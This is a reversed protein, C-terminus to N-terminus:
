MGQIANKVAQGKDGEPVHFRTDPPPTTNKKAEEVEAAFAKDHLEQNNSGELRKVVRQKEGKSEPDLFKDEVALLNAEGETITTAEQIMKNYTSGDSQGIYKFRPQGTEKNKFSTRHYYASAQNVNDVAFIEETKPNQFFYTM